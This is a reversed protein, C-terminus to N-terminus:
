KDSKKEFSKEIREKSYKQTDFDPIPPPKYFFSQTDVQETSNKKLSYFDPHRTNFEDFMELLSKRLSPGAKWPKKQIIDPFPYDLDQLPKVFDITDMITMQNLAAHAKEKEQKSLAPRDTKHQKHEKYSLYTNFRMIENMHGSDEYYSASEELDRTREIIVNRIKSENVYNGGLEFVILFLVLLEKKFTNEDIMNNKRQKFLEFYMERCNEFFEPHKDKLNQVRYFCHGYDHRATGFSQQAFFNTHVATPNLGFSVPLYNNFIACLITNYGLTGNDSYFPLVSPNQMYNNYANDNESIPSLGGKGIEKKIDSTNLTLPLNMIHNVYTGIRDYPPDGEKRTAINAGNIPSVWAVNNLESEVNWAGGKVTYGAASTIELLAPLWTSKDLTNTNERFNAPLDAWLIKEKKLEGDLGILEYEFFNKDTNKIYIKGPVREVDTLEGVVYSRSLDKLISLKILAIELLERPHKNAKKAEKIQEGVLELYERLTSDRMRKDAIGSEISYSFEKYAQDIVEYIKERAIDAKKNNEEELAEDYDICYELHRFNKDYSLLTGWWEANDKKGWNEPSSNPNLSHDLVDVVRTTKTSKPTSPKPPRLM